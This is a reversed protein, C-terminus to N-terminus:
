YGKTMKAFRARADAENNYWTGGCTGDRMEYMAGWAETADRCLSGAPEYGETRHVLTVTAGTYDNRGTDLVTRKSPTTLTSGLPM